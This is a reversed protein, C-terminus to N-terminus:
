AFALFLEDDATGQARCTVFKWKLRPDSDDFEPVELTVSKMYAGFLQGSQQGLQIMVSVPSRQRAAQYLEKTANDDMSYLSFNMSVNRKGGMACRPGNSGFENARLDLDNDM